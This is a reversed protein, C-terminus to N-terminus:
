KKVESKIEGTVTLSEENVKKIKTIRGQSFSFVIGLDGYQMEDMNKELWDITNKLVERNKHM